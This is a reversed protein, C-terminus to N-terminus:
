SPKHIPAGSVAKPPSCINAIDPNQLSQLYSRPTAAPPLSLRELCRLYYRPSWAARSSLGFVIQYVGEPGSYFHQLTELIM